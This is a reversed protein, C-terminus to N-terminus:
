GSTASKSYPKPRPERNKVPTTDNAEKQRSKGFAYPKHIGTGRLSIETSSSAPATAGPPPSAFFGDPNILPAIVVCKGAYLEPHTQLHHILKLLLYLTPTEDGHVAGLLLTCNSKAEGFTVFMLPRKQRTTRFYQWPFRKLELDKWGYAGCQHQFSSLFKQFDASSTDFAPVQAPIAFFFLLIFLFLSTRRMLSIEILPQM